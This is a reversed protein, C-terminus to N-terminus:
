VKFLYSSGDVFTLGIGGIKFTRGAVGNRTLSRKGIRDLVSPQVGVNRERLTQDLRTDLKDVLGIGVRFFSKKKGKEVRDSLIKKKM